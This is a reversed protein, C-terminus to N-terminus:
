HKIIKYNFTKGNKTSIRLMYVGNQLDGLQLKKAGRIHSVESYILKSLTNYIEIKCIDDIHAVIELVENFPNPRITINEGSEDCNIIQANYTKSTGDFDIQTIRYYMDGSINSDDVFIYENIINSNGSGAKKGINEYIIGNTSREVIFYDNNIESATTWSVIRNNNGCSVDFDILEVPLENTKDITGFTIPSYHTFPKTSTIYGVGSVADVMASGGKNAWCSGGWHAVRLSAHNQIDSLADDAWYLTVDPQNGDNVSSELLWYEMGSVHDLREDDNCMYGTNWNVIPTQEYNYNATITRSSVASSISIPGWYTGDGTAFNFANEGTKSIIGDVYSSNNGINSTANPGFSISSAEELLNVIGESFDADANITMADLLYFGKSNDFLVSYFDGQGSLIKQPSEGVFKVLGMANYTGQNLWDGKLSIESNTNSTLTGSNNMDATITLRGDQKVILTSNEYVFLNNCQAQDVTSVEPSTTFCNDVPKIHVNSNETPPLQPISYSNETDFVLWNNPSDEDWLEDIAGTWVYDNGSIDPIDPLTISVTAAISDTINFGCTPHDIERGVFYTTPALPSVTISQTNGILNEAVGYEDVYWIYTSSYVNNGGEATLTISSGACITENANIVITPATLAEPDVVIWKYTNIDSECNYATCYRRTQIYNEDAVSQFVPITTSWMSYIPDGFEDIQTAHRYEDQCNSGGGSGATEITITLEVNECVDINNPLKEAIPAIPQLFVKLTGEDSTAECANDNSATLRYKFNGDLSIGVITLEDTNAGSYQSGTPTGDAVSVWDSGNYYQWQYTYSGTGGSISTSAQTTGNVCIEDETFSVQAFTPQAVVEWIYTNYESEVSGCARRTQIINTGVVAAFNPITGSWASYITDGNADIETSFRFEDQCSGFGFKGGITDILTIYEGECITELNPSKTGEPAIPKEHVNLTITTSTAECYDSNNVILQYNYSNAISIGLVSLQNTNAGSYEAGPPTGDSVNVWDSEDYYQWQYSYSGTGGSVTASAISSEGVYIDEFSFAIPSIIPQAVVEWIYTNYESEVSGCARRTQIINTGVVAAFNPITGSWASYITDGNADIETSFRFEDQCSSSGGSGDQIDILTLTTGECLELLNPSKTGSPPELKSSKMSIAWDHLKVGAGDITGILRLHPYTTPNIGSIDFSKEGDGAVSINGYGSINSWSTGNASGQVEINLTGGGLTQNWIVEDYEEADIVSAFHIPTSTITGTPPAAAIVDDILYYVSGNGNWSSNFTMVFKIVHTGNYNTIDISSEGHNYYSYGQGSGQQSITKLSTGTTNTLTGGIKFELKTNPTPDFPSGVNFYNGTKFTLTSINTLDVEQAVTITGSAGTGFNVAGVQLWNGPFSSGQDSVVNASKGSGTTTTWYSTGSNFEGNDVRNGGGGGALVVDHNADALTGNLEDTQFQAQTTQFWGAIESPTQYTFSYTETTWASWINAAGKVRARVYYTTNNTPAFNNSFEFNAETNLPYAGSFTQTWSTGDFSPSTNIEIEYDSADYFQHSIRFIPTTTELRSNNFALQNDGGYNYFKINDPTGTQQWLWKITSNQTITFTVSGSTGSAPVSGTGTWGTVIYGTRTGSTATVSANNAFSHSGNAYTAGNYAESVSLTRESSIVNLNYDETEGYQMVTCADNSTYGEGNFASRVRLRKTGPTTGAPVTINFTQTSNNAVNTRVGIFENADSFDGDGNWDVWVGIEGPNYPSGDDKYTVSLTYTQGLEVNTSHGSYYNYSPSHNQYGTTNNITGISVNSIGIYGYGSGPANGDTHQPTCTTTFSVANSYASQSSYTCTIIRRYYTTGNEYPAVGSYSASTAGPINTWPGSASPASQWQYTIGNEMTSGNVSATFGQGHTDSNPLISATGPTPTGSCNTSLSYDILLYPKLTGDSGGIHNRVKYISTEHWSGEPKISMSIYSGFANKIHTTATSNLSANKWGTSQNTPLDNSYYTVASNYLTSGSYQTPDNANLFAFRNLSHSNELIDWVYVYASASNITASSPINTLNFKMFGIVWYSVDTGFQLDAYNYGDSAVSRTWYTTANPYVNITPDV